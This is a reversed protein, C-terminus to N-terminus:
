ANAISSGHGRLQAVAISGEERLGGLRWRM